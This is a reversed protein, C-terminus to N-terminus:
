NRKVYMSGSDIRTVSALKGPNSVQYTNKGIKFPGGDRLSNRCERIKRFSFFVGIDLITRLITKGILSYNTGSSIDNFLEPWLGLNIEWCRFFLDFHEPLLREKASRDKESLRGTPVALLPYVMIRYKKLDDILELTKTVDDSTEDPLGMILTSVPLWNADNSIGTAEKVVEPWEEPKFPKCKGAIHNKLLRPSGTELGVQYGRLNRNDLHMMESIYSLMGPASLLSAFAAHSVSVRRVGETNLVAKFLDEVSQQNPYIGTAGYRFIDEAHLIISDHGQRVNVKVDELIDQISRCRLQTLGPNCFNCGRGCGRSVEVLGCITPGRIGPIEAAKVPTGKVHHPLPIGAVADRCLPGIVNEAEGLVVTDIGFERRVDEDMLQWAGPGGAIITLDDQHLIPNEILERFKHVNFASEGGFLNSFTSTVPGKGLPDFTTISVVKTSPGIAKDLYDPHAIIVEDNGFGYDLLKAEIKRLGVPASSAEGNEKQVPVSPCLFRYFFWDPLYGRPASASFGFFINGAYESMLTRDATLVIEYDPKM